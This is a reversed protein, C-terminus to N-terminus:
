EVTPLPQIAVQTPYATRLLGALRNPPMYGSVKNIIKGEPTFLITTPFSRIGLSAVIRRDRAAHLKLPVFGSEVQRIITPNSWSNREMKRCYGCHDSTIFAVIPLRSRRALSTAVKPSQAWNIEASRQPYQAEVWSPVSLCITTLVLTLLSKRNM